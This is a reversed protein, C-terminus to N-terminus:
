RGFMSPIVSVPNRPVSEVRTSGDYEVVFMVKTKTWAYIANCESAGFGTDYSYDLYQKAQEWSMVQGRPQEEYRPVREHNYEGWGMEGIVVCEISEGDAAEEIDNAFNEM